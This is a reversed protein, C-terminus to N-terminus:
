RVWSPSAAAACTAAGRDALSKEFEEWSMSPDVYPSLMQDLVVLRSQGQDALQRATAALMGESDLMELIVGRSEDVAATLLVRVEEVGLSVADFVPTYVNSCSRLKGRRRM